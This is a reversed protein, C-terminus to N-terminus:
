KFTKRFSEFTTSRNTGNGTNELFVFRDILIEFRNKLRRVDAIENSIVQQYERKKGLATMQDLFQKREEIELVVVIM